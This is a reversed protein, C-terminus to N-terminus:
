RNPGRVATWNSNRTVTLVRRESALRFSGDALAKETTSRLSACDLGPAFWETFRVDQGEPSLRLVTTTHNLVTEEGIVTMPRGWMNTPTCGNRIRDNLAIAAARLYATRGPRYFLPFIVRQAIPTLIAQIPNLLDGAATRLPDGPFSRSLVTEEGDLIDGEATARRFSSTRYETVTYSGDDKYDVFESDLTIADRPAIMRLSQPFAQTIVALFVVAGAIAGAFKGAIPAIGAIWRAWARSSWKRQRGATAGWLVPSSEVLVSTTQSRVRDRYACRLRTELSDPSRPATWTRLLGDLDNDSLNM